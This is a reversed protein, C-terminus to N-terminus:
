SFMRDCIKVVDTIDIKNNDDMDAAITQYRSLTKKGFMKDCVNVIDTIDVRGSPAVDGKVVVLLTKLINNNYVAEVESLTGINGSYTKKAQLDGYTAKLKAIFTASSLDKNDYIILGNEMQVKVFKTDSQNRVTIELNDILYTKTYDIAETFRNTIQKQYKKAYTKATDIKIYSNAKDFKSQIESKLDTIYNIIDWLRDNREMVNNANSRDTETHTDSIIKQIKQDLLSQLKTELKNYVKNYLSDLKRYYSGFEEKIYDEYDTIGYQNYLNQWDVLGNKITTVEADLETIKNLIEDYFDRVDKVTSCNDVEDLLKDSFSDYYINMLNKLPTKLAKLSDEIQVFLSRSGVVGGSVNANFYEKLLRQTEKLYNVDAMIESKKANLATAASSHGNANLESVILNFTSESSISNIKNVLSRSIIDELDDGYTNSWNTLVSILNKATIESDIVRQKAEDQTLVAANANLLFSFSLVLTLLLYKFVRKM